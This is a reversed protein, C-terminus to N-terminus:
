HWVDMYTWIKENQTKNKVEKEHEEQWSVCEVTQFAQNSKM